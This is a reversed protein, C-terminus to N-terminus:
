QQAAGGAAAAAGGRAAAAGGGGRGRAVRGRGRRARGHPPSRRRRSSRPRRLRSDRRGRLGSTSAANHDHQLTLALTCPPCLNLDNGHANCANRPSRMLAMCAAYCRCAHHQWGMCSGMTCASGAESRLLALAVCPARSSWAHTWLEGLAGMCWIAWWSAVKGAAALEANPAAANVMRQSAVGRRIRRQLWAVRKARAALLAPGLPAPQPPEPPRLPAPPTQRPPEVRPPPPPPSPWTTAAPLSSPCAAAPRPAEAGAAHAHSAAAAPVLDL